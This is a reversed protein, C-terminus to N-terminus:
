VMDKLRKQYEQNLFNEMQRIKMEPTAVWSIGYPKQEDIWKILENQLKVPIAPNFDDSGIIKHGHEDTRM